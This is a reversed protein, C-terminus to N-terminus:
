TKFKNALWNIMRIFLIVLYVAGSLMMIEYMDSYWTDYL